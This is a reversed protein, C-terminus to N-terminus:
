TVLLDSRTQIVDYNGKRRAVATEYAAYMNKACSAWSFRSARNLGATSLSLRYESDTLVRAIAEALGDVDDPDVLVGATGVVEPLSTTNSVIVPTGCAMAELPPLGFGEYRSPYVMMAAGNYLESLCDVFGVFRVDERLGLRSLEEEVSEYLWGRGGALVLPVGNVLGRDKLKAYARFLLIHNKRPELTGVNLIYKGPVLGLPQLAAAVRDSPLVCYEAGYGLPIAVVREPALGLHTIAEQRTHDSYTIVLGSNNSITDFLRCWHDRNEPLHHEPMLISTLDPILFSNLRTQLIPQYITTMTQFVDQRAYPGFKMRIQYAFQYANEFRKIRYGSVAERYYPHISTAPKRNLFLTLYNSLGASKFGRLVGVTHNPIGSRNPWILCDIELGIRLM